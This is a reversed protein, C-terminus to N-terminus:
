TPKTDSPRAIIGRALPQPGCPSEPTSRLLSKSDHRGWSSLGNRFPRNVVGMPFSVNFHTQKKNVYSRVTSRKHPINPQSQHRPPGNIKRQSNSVNIQLSKPGSSPGTVNFGGARKMATKQSARIPAFERNKAFFIGARACPSM